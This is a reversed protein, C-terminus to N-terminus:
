NRIERGNTTKVFYAKGKETFTVDYANHDYDYFNWRGFGKLKVEVLGKQVYDYYDKVPEQQDMWNGFAIGTKIEYTEPYPIGYEKILMEKAKGRSLQTLCSNLLLTMFAFFIIKTTTFRKAGTKDISKKM